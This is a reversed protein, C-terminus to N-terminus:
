CNGGGECVVSLTLSWERAAFTKLYAISPGGGLCSPEILLGYTLIGAAKWSFPSQAPGQLLPSGSDGGSVCGYAYAFNGECAPFFGVREKTLFTEAIFAGNGYWAAVTPPRFEGGPNIPTPCGTGVPGGWFAVSYRTINYHQPDIRYIAFDDESAFPCTRCIFETINIDVFQAGVQDPLFLGSVGGFYCSSVCVRTGTSNLACHGASGLYLNSDADRWIFNATCWTKGLTPASEKQIELYAGPGIGDSGRLPPGHNLTEYDVPFHGELLQRSVNSVLSLIWTRPLLDIPPAPANGSFAAVLTRSGNFSPTLGLFGSTNLATYVAHFAPDYTVMMAFHEVDLTGNDLLHPGPLEAHHVDPLLQPTKSVLNVLHAHAVVTKAVDSLTYRSANRYWRIDTFLDQLRETVYVVTENGADVCIGCFISASQFVRIRLKCDNDRSQFGWSANDTNTQNACPGTGNNRGVQWDYSWVSANLLASSLANIDGAASPKEIHWTSNDFNTANSLETYAQSVVDTPLALATTGQSTSRVATVAYPTLNTRVVTDERLSYAEWSPRYDAVAQGVVWWEGYSLISNTSFTITWNALIGNEDSWTSLTVNWGVPILSTASPDAVTRELWSSDSANLVGRPVQFESNALRAFARAYKIALAQTTISAGTLALLTNYHKTVDYGTALSANWAMAHVTAPHRTLEVVAYLSFGPFANNFDTSNWLYASVNAVNYLSRAYALITEDAVGPGNIHVEGDYRATVATAALLLVIFIVRHRM